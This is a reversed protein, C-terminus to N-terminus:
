VASRAKDLDDAGIVLRTNTALYVLDINVGAAAIRRAVAGLAGPRDRIELLLVEREQSVEFGAAELAQRAGAAEQVLIHVTSPGATAAGCIGEINIGARGLAEGMGALTGPRNELVVTLDKAM